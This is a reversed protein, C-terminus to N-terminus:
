SIKDCQNIVYHESTWFLMKGCCMQLRFCMKGLVVYGVLYKFHTLFFKKKFLYHVMQEFQIKFTQYHQM